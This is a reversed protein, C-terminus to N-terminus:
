MDGIVVGGHGPEGIEGDDDDGGYDQEGDPACETSVNLLLRVWLDEKFGEVQSLIHRMKLDSLPLGHVDHVSHPGNGHHPHHESM